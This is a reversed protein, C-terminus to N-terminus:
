RTGVKASNSAMADSYISMLQQYNKEATFNAEFHKRAFKGMRLMEEPHCMAWRMKRALDRADGPDFLLGTRGDDVLEALAGIRSAIVPLGTGMAEILTRPFNEYCISPIVLATAQVMEERVQDGTLSGLAALRPVGELLKAEPGTGAVRINLCGPQRVAAVLIDIGKELSLRGVFLFGSRAREQPAPFDVFNPKVCIREPPVGGEIFKKRCFENLAVYRTVKNQFTGLARHMVLMGALASSAAHSDRYCAHAVGRWPVRGMCDECVKGNRLFIANLCLLRFNHLTQVVPVGLRRAAWFVSPSILPFTNHVHIIDPQNEAILASVEDITRHSWVTQLALEITGQHIVDDNSRIYAAVLHGRSRLLAVEAEVVADEGGRQQYANHVVLVRPKSDVKLKDIQCSTTRRWM